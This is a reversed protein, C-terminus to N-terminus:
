IGKSLINLRHHLGRSSSFLFTGLGTLSILKYRVLSGEDELHQQHQQERFADHALASNIMVAESGCPFPSSAGALSYAFASSFPFSDLCAPSGGRFPQSSRRPVSPSDADGDSTGISPRHGREPLPSSDAKQLRQLRRQQYQLYHQHPMQQHAHHLQRPHQQTTTTPPPPIPRPPPPLPFALTRDLPLSRSMVVCTMDLVCHDDEADEDRSSTNRSRRNTITMPVASAVATRAGWGPKEMSARGTAATPSEAASSSSTLNGSMRRVAKQLQSRMKLGYGKGFPSSGASASSSSPASSTAAAVSTTAAATTTDASVEGCGGGTGGGGYGSGSDRRSRSEGSPKEYM